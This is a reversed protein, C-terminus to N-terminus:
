RVSIICKEAYQAPTVLIDSWSLRDGRQYRCILDLLELWSSWWSTGMIPVYYQLVSYMWLSYSDVTLLGGKSLHPMSVTCECLYSNVAFLRGRSVHLISVNVTFVYSHDRSVHRISVTCECHIHIYLSHVVQLHTDYVWQVNLTFIFTCPIFLRYFLTTYEMYMWLSYSHVPFSCGTSSHWISM